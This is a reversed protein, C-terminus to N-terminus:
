AKLGTKEEFEPITMNAKKAADAITLLNDKVLNVLMELAGEIKGEIKGEARGKKEGEARGEARFRRKIAEDYEERQTKEDFLTALMTIVEQKHENLFELLIGRELCIRITEEISKIDNGYIKHQEDFIKCFATYQGMLTNDPTHIVKVELDVSGKGGFLDEKLSIKEPINKRDSGTYVVFLEPVPIKVKASDHFSQGTRLLYQHYSEALYLLLRLTINNNWTSQAEFLMILKAIDFENVVFSLDNYLTNIFMAKLTEINIDDITVNTDEPHLEKYLQLVYKKDSFLTVFVSNKTERNTTGEKEYVISSDENDM